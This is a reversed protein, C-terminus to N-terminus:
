TMSYKLKGLRCEKLQQQHFLVVSSTEIEHELDQSAGAKAAHATIRQL